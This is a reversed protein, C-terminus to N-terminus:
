PGQARVRKEMEDVVQDLTMETTDIVIADAPRALPGVARATGVVM